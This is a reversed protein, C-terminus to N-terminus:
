KQEIGLDVKEEKLKLGEIRTYARMSDSAPEIGRRKRRVLCVTDSPYQLAFALQSAPSDYRLSVGGRPAPFNM